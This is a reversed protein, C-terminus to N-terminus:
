SKSDPMEVDFEYIYNSPTTEKKEGFLRVNLYAPQDPSFRERFTCIQAPFEYDTVIVNFGMRTGFLGALAERSFRFYDYPYSHLPFSQHTQIFLIGGIKLVKMIEHAALRPYKFHEFTSCSIIVDFQEEGVTETLRHVDAIIDVDEGAEIDTGLYAGANPVWSAHLTSRMSISRRTGLELVQPQPMAQCRAIFEDLLLNGDPQEPERKLTNLVSYFYKISSWESSVRYFLSM